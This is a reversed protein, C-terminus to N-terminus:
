NECVADSGDEKKIESLIKTDDDATNNLEIKIACLIRRVSEKRLGKEKFYNKLFDNYCIDNNSGCETFSLLSVYENYIEGMEDFLREFSEEKRSRFSSSYGRMRLKLKKAKKKKM